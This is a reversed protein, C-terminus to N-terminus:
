EGPHPNHTTKTQYFLVYHVGPGGKESLERMKKAVDEARVPRYKSWRGRLLCGFVPMVWLAVQEGFRMEKRNGILFSPQYIYMAPFELARLAAEARGKTRLYFNKSSAQAGISSVLHYQRIGNKRVITGCRVPIAYDVAIFAEESGAKKITTGICCFLVDGHLVSQLAADDTFDVVIQELKGDRIPLPKRVLAKVKAYGSNELLDQVLLSGVLGTAGIVIATGPM